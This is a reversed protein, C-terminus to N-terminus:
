KCKVNLECHCEGSKQEKVNKCMCKSSEDKILSCPCYGENEKLKQKITEELERNETLKVM